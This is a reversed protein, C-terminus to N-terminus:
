YSGTPKEPTWRLVPARAAKVEDLRAVQASTPANLVKEPDEEAEKSIAIM